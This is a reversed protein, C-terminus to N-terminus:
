QQLGCYLSLGPTADVALINVRLKNNAAGFRTNQIMYKEYAFSLPTAATIPGVVDEVFVQQAESFASANATDEIAVRLKKGSGLALIQIFITYNGVLASTDLSGTVAGAATPSQVGTTIDLIPM